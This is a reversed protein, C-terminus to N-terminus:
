KEKTGSTNTTTYTQNKGSDYGCDCKSYIYPQGASYAIITEMYCGCKPCITNRM